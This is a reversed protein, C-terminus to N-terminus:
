RLKLIFNPLSTEQTAKKIKSLILLFSMELQIAVVDMSM